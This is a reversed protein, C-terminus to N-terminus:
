KRSEIGRVWDQQKRSGIVPVVVETQYFGRGSHYTHLALTGDTRLEFSIEGTEIAGAQNCKYKHVGDKDAEPRVTCTNSPGMYQIKTLIVTKGPGSDIDLAFLETPSWEYDDPYDPHIWKGILAPHIWNGVLNHPNSIVQGVAKEPGADVALVEVLIVKEPVSGAEPAERKVVSTRTCGVVLLILIWKLETKM